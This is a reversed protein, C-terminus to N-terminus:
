HPMLRGDAGGAAADLVVAVGEDVGAGTASKALSLGSWPGVTAWTTGRRPWAASLLLGGDGSELSM